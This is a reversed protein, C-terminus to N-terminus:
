FYYCINLSHHFYTKGTQTFYSLIYMFPKKGNLPFKFTQQTPLKDHAVVSLMVVSLMIVSLMIVNLMITFLIRCEACHCKAYYSLMAISLTM